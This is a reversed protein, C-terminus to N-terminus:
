TAEAVHLRIYSSLYYLFPELKANREVAKGSERSGYGYVHRLYFQFCGGAYTHVSGNMITTLRQVRRHRNFGVGERRGGSPM